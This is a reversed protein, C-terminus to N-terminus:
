GDAAFTGQLCVCRQPLASGVVSGRWGVMDKRAREDKVRIEAVFTMRVGMVVDGMLSREVVARLMPTWFVTRTSPLPGDGWFPSVTVM